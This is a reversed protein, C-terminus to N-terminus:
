KRVCLFGKVKKLHTVCLYATFGASLGATLATSFYLCGATGGLRFVMANAFVAAALSGAANEEMIRFCRDQKKLLWHVTDIVLGPVLYAIVIFGGMSGTMGMMLAIVAQVFAMLAGAHKRDLLETGIVLFMLSFATGIGGPIHMMVTISNALPSILKKGALGADAFLAMCTLDRVTYTEKVM